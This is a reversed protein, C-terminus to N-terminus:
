VGICGWDTAIMRGRKLPVRLLRLTRAFRPPSTSFPIAKAFAVFRLPVILILPFLSSQVFVSAPLLPAPASATAM